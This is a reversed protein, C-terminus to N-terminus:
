PQDARRGFYAFHASAPTDLRNSSQLTTCAGIWSGDTAGASIGMYDGARPEDPLRDSQAVGAFDWTNEPRRLAGVACSPRYAGGGWLLSVGLEGRSNQAFAAYQFAYQENRIHPKSVVCGGTACGDLSSPDILAVWVSPYKWKSGFAPDQSANWAFGILNGYAFGDTLRDDAFGCWNTDPKTEGNFFCANGQPSSPYGPEASDPSTQNARLLTSQSADDPWRWVALQSNSYHAGLYMTDAANRVPMLGFIPQNDADLQSLTSFCSPSTAVGGALDDLSLRYVIAARYAPKGAVPSNPSFANVSIFLYRNSLGIKPQDYWGDANFSIETSPLDYSRDFGGNGKAVMLRIRNGGAHKPLRTNAQLVWVWLGYNAIYQALQDCCYGGDVAAGDPGRMADKPDLYKPTVGGDSSQAAGWNWTMFVDSGRIAVDPEAVNSANAINTVPRYTVLDTPQEEGTAGAPPIVAPRLHPDSEIPAQPDIPTVPKTGENLELQEGQAAGPVTPPGPAEAVYQLPQVVAAPVQECPVVPTEGGGTPQTPTGTPPVSTPPEPTPRSQCAGVLSAVLAVVIVFRGPATPKAVSSM